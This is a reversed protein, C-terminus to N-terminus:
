FVQSPFMSPPIHNQVRTSLGKRVSICEIKIRLLFRYSPIRWFVANEHNLILIQPEWCEWFVLHLIFTFAPKERHNSKIHVTPFFNLTGCLSHSQTPMKVTNRAAPGSPQPKIVTTVGKEPAADKIYIRLGNWLEMLPFMNSFKQSQHLKRSGVM